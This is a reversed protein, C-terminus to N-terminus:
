AKVETLLARDIMITSHSRSGRGYQSVRTRSPFILYLSAMLSQYAFHLSVLCPKFRNARLEVQRSDM